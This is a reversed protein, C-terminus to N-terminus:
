DEAEPLYLEPELKIKKDRPSMSDHSDLKELGSAEEILANYADDDYDNLGLYKQSAGLQGLEFKFSNLREKNPDLLNFTTVRNIDTILRENASDDSSENV